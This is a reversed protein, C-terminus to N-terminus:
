RAEYTLMKLPNFGHNVPGYGQGIAVDAGARLAETIFRKGEAVAESLGLGRALLAAIASSLTCGTGIKIYRRINRRVGVRNYASSRVSDITQRFLIRIRM